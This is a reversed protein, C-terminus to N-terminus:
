VGRKGKQGGAEGGITLKYRECGEEKERNCVKRCTREMNQSFGKWIISIKLNHCIRLIQRSGVKRKRGGWLLIGMPV